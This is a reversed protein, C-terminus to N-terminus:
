FTLLQQEYTTCGSLPSSMTKPVEHTLFRVLAPPLPVPGCGSSHKPLNPANCNDNCSFEKSSRAYAQPAKGDLLFVGETMSGAVGDFGSKLGFFDHWIM